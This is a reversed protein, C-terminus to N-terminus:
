AVKTLPPLPLTRAAPVSCFAAGTHTRMSLVMVIKEEPTNVACAAAVTSVPAIAPRARDDAAPNYTVKQLRSASPPTPPETKRVGGLVLGSYRFGFM